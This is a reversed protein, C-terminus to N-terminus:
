ATGPTSHSRPAWGMSCRCSAPCNSNERPPPTASCWSGSCDSRKARTSGIPATASKATAFAPSAMSCATSRVAQMSAGGLAQLPALAPFVLARAAWDRALGLWNGGSLRGFCDNRVKRADEPAGREILGRALVLAPFKLLTEVADRLQFLAAEPSRGLDDLLRALEHAIPSPWSQIVTEFAPWRSDAKVDAVLRILERKAEGIDDSSVLRVPLEESLKRICAFVEERASDSLETRRSLKYEVRRFFDDRYGGTAQEAGFDELVFGADRRQLVSKIAEFDM